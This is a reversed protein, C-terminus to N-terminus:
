GFLLTTLFISQQAIFTFERFIIWVIPQPVTLSATIFIQLALM